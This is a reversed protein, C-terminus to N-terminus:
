IFKLVEKISNIAFYGVLGICLAAALFGFILKKGITMRM